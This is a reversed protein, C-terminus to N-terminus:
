AGRVSQAAREIRLCSGWSSTDFLGRRPHGAGLGESQGSLSFCESSFSTEKQAFIDQMHHCPIRLPLAAQLALGYFKDEASYLIRHCLDLVLVWYLSPRGFRFRRWEFPRFIALNENAEVGVSARLNNCSSSIRNRVGPRSAMRPLVGGTDLALPDIVM